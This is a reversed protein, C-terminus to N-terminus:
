SAKWRCPTSYSLFQFGHKELIPRSMPSADVYLFRFGRQLAERARAVLLATYFGRKRYAPLTSGGWLSAFQTPPHFYVWAASVIRGDTVVGYVSLLDPYEKLDRSLWSGLQSFDEDWVDHELQVIGDIDSPDLLRTVASLDLTNFYGPADELDLVMLAEPDEIEFGRAALRQSLDPPTDYDFVKWEFEYGLAQYFAVQQDIESDVTTSDMKSYLIFGVRDEHNVNRVVQDLVQREVGPLELDIRQQRTFVDLLQQRDM